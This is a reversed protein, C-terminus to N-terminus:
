VEVGSCNLPTEPQKCVMSIHIQVYGHGKNVNRYYVDYMIRNYKGPSLPFFLGSYSVAKRCRFAQFWKITEVNKLTFDSITDVNAPTSGVYCSTLANALRQTHIKLHTLIKELRVM